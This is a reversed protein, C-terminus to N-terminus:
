RKPLSFYKGSAKPWKGPTWVSATFTLKLELRGKRGSKWKRPALAVVEEDATISTYAASM